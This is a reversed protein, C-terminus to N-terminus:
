KLYEAAGPHRASAEDLAKSAADSPDMNSNHEEEAGGSPAMGGYGPKKKEGGKDDGDKSAGSKDGKPKYGLTPGSKTDKKVTKGKDGGNNKDDDTTSGENLKYKDSLEKTKDPNETRALTLAAKISLNPNDKLIVKMEPVWDNFDKNKPDALIKEVQQQASLKNTNTDVSSIQESLPKVAKAVEASVGKMILSVLQKRDLRELDVGDVSFEGEIDDKNTSKGGGASTQSNMKEVVQTLATGMTQMGKMMQGMTGTLTKLTEKLDDNEDAM